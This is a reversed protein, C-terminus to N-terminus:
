DQKTGKIAIDPISVFYQKLMVRQSSKQWWFLSSLDNNDLDSGWRSVQLGFTLVCVKEPDYKRPQAM